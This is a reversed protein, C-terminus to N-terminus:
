FALQMTMRHLTEGEGLISSRISQVSENSSTVIWQTGSRQRSFVRVLYGRRIDQNVREVQIAAEANGEAWLLHCMERFDCRPSPREKTAESATLILKGLLRLFRVPDPMGNFMFTPLADAADLAIYRGQEIAAGIDLGHTQLRPLLSERHSETAVVLAANGAKLANGVFQTLDDLFCRDDSYFGVEHRRAIQMNLALLPPVTKGRTHDAIYKDKSDTLDDGALSAIVFRQGQLVAEVAPLVERAAASKVVYGSGGTRLAGEIIDWSRNESLFLIKAKPVHERIRRAAEIGNLNPLGIDLVILDPHLEEASQVAELGDSVEGIVQLGPQKELTSSVFRCFPEYDDVVLVRISEESGTGGQV